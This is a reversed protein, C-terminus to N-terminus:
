FENVFLCEEPERENKLPKVISQNNDLKVTMKQKTKLNKSKGLSYFKLGIAFIIM